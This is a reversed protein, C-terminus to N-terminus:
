KWSKSHTAPLPSNRRRNRAGEAPSYTGDVLRDLAAIVRNRVPRDLREMEKLARHALEWRWAM